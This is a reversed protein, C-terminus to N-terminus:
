LYDVKGRAFAVVHRERGALDHVVDIQHGSLVAALLRQVEDSQSPDIEFGVAGNPALIRPLDDIVHRVLDLGDDGGDLALHPEHRLDPNEEMQVPTLYPLNTLLLDIPGTLPEALNGQLFRLRDRREPPLLTDANRSAVTLADSSVDTAILTGTWKPDAHYVTSIAIAGSGTGIDAVTAEQRSKLWHLGWEVLPETEPRPVLVGPTTEFQLGMFERRGILYAVPVGTARLDILERYATRSSNPLLEPDRLLLGTQSVGLVHAMLLRADLAATDIGSDRLTAAGETRVRHITPASSFPM